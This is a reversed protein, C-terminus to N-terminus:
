LRKGSSPDFLVVRDMVLRVYAKGHLSVSEEQQIVGRIKEQEHAVDAWTFAGAPEVVLVTAEL